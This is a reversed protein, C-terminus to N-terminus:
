QPVVQAARALAELAGLPLLLREEVGDAGGGPWAMQLDSWGGFRPGRARRAQMAGRERRARERQAERAAAGRQLERSKSREGPLGDGLADIATLLLKLAEEVQGYGRLEIAVILLHSPQAREAPLRGSALFCGGIPAVRVPAVSSSSLTHTARDGVATVHIARIATVRGRAAAAAALPWM